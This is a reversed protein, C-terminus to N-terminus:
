LKSGISIMLFTVQLGESNHLERFVAPPASPEPKDHLVYLKDLCLVNDESWFHREAEALVNAVIALNDALTDETAGLESLQMEIDELRTQLQAQDLAGNQQAFDGGRRIIDLKSRLLAKRSTLNEREEKRETIHALAISLLHDFARRKLLRRTEQEGVAPELLRHQDFGVTTRPVDSLVQDGVQAHGFGHKETKQAVLLTTIPDNTLAHAARFERLAADREIIQEMRAESYFLAAFAPDDALANRSVAVPAPFGDILDIVYEVAHIVPRRLAKAYGAMIRVRPDTADVTREIAEKVLSPPLKSRNEGTPGFFNTFLKLMSFQESRGCSLSRSRV